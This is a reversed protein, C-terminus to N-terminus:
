NSEFTLVVDGADVDGTTVDLSKIIAMNTIVVPTVASINKEKLFALDVNLLLDGKKVQQNEIVKVDFGEGKLKVTDLGVHLILELGFEDRIIVAHKTKFVNVVVGNCPSVIAGEEPIVAFGDGMMKAAFVEDEVQDMPIIRGKAPSVLEKKKGKFLKFM